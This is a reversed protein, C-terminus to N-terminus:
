QLEKVLPLENLYKVLIRVDNPNGLEKEKELAPYYKNDMNRYLQDVAAAIDEYKEINESNFLNYFGRAFMAVGIILDRKKPDDIGKTAESILRNLDSLEEKLSDKIGRNKLQSKELIGFTILSNLLGKMNKSMEENYGCWM